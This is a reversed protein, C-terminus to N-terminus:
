SAADPGAGDAVARVVDFSTVIGLLRGSETVFMRHVRHGVMAACAERLSADPRISLVERTMWDAVLERGLLRPSYDEKVFYVEDPDLEDAREEGAPEGMEFGGRETTVRDGAVHEARLVDSLTLVGLLEGSPGVVPAGGIREEEFTKLASEIPDDPALRIVDRRMLSAATPRVARIM